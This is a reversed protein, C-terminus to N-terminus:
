PNSLQNFVLDIEEKKWGTHDMLIQEIDERSTGTAAEKKVWDRLEHLNYVVHKKSRFYYLLFLILALLILIGIGLYVYLGYKELFSEEPQGGFPAAPARRDATRTTGGSSASTCSRQEEPLLLTTGCSHADNCIRTEQGNKCSSWGGCTWSEECKDCAQTEIRDDRCNRNDTCTRTQELDANCYSWASCEWDPSCGGSGGSGGSPAPPSDDQPQTGGLCGDAEVCFNAVQNGNDCTARLRYKGDSIDSETNYSFMLGNEGSVIDVLDDNSDFVKVLTFGTCESVEVQVLEPRSYDSKDTQIDVALALSLCTLLFM